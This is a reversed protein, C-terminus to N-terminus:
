PFHICCSLCHFSITTFPFPVSHLMFSMNLSIFAVHFAIFPFSLSTFPFSHLMFSMNLSIFAVHFAIFPFSHSTFPVSHLMFFLSIFAVHFAIFPCSPVPHCLSMQQSEVLPEKAGVSAPFNENKTCLPWWRLFCYSYFDIVHNPSM